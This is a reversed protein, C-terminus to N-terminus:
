TPSRRPRCPPWPWTWPGSDPELTDGTELADRTDLSADGDILDASGDPPAASDVAGDAATEFADPAPNDVAADDGCSSAGVFLLLAIGVKRKM